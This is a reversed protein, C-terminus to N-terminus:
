KANKNEKSCGSAWGLAEKLLNHIKVEMIDLSSFVVLGQFIISVGHTGCCQECLTTPVERPSIVLVLVPTAKSHQRCHICISMKLHFQIFSLFHYLSLIFIYHVYLPLRHM